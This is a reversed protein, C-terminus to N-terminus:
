KLLMMRRSDQFGSDTSLRYLYVGSAMPEARSNTGHWNVAYRGPAHVEDVLRVVEQGLTNYITLEVHAERPVHYVIQTTPNFP